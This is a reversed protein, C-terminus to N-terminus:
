TADADNKKLMSVVISTVFGFLALFFAGKGYFIWFSPNSLLNVWTEIFGNGLSVVTMNMFTGPIALM